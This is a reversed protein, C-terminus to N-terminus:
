CDGNSGDLSILAGKMGRHKYAARRRYVDVCSGRLSGSSSMFREGDGSMPGGGGGGFSASLSVGERSSSSRLRSFVRVFVEKDREESGGRM